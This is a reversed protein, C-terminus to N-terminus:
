GPDASCGCPLSPTRRDACHVSYLPCTECSKVSHVPRVGIFTASHTQVFHPVVCCLVACHLCYTGILPAGRMEAVRFLFFQDSYLIIEVVMQHLHYDIIHTVLM